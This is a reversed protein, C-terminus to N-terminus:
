GLAPPKPGGTAWDLLEVTHVVPLNMGSAIQAICGINGAAVLDPATRAINTIKRQKLRASLEPQLLNYTGASGCCIHSEPIDAVTFGVAGLLMKPENRIQQGHQLSCASHYAIKLPPIDASRQLGLQGAFESIDCALAAVAAAKEGLTRDADHAFLGGYDKVTTGCGSTNIIIADLGEGAIEESWALINARAFVRAETEKGMHLPLAGCCGANRPIVVEVGHRTLLRITADNIEPALVTQACGTMLVVRKRREGAPLHRPLRDLRSAPRMKAPAMELMARLPGHFLGAFPRALRAGLLALRFLKPRPLIIGLAARLLRDFWPREFTEEIYERGHEALHM